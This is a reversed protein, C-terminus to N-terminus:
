GPKHDMDSDTYGAKKMAAESIGVLECEDQFTLQKDLAYQFHWWETKNYDTDWGGQASIREFVGNKEIEATLDIYYGLPIDFSSSPNFSQCSLAGKEHLKGQTGDQNSTKCYLRWTDRASSDADRVIYYRRGKPNALAQQLDIARGVIHFSFSSAGVKKAKGLGRKSDGYPGEVTGGLAKVRASVALWADAVDERLTFDGVKKFAFRGLPLKWQNDLWKKIEARTADDARGEPLGKFTLDPVVDAPLGSVAHVRYPRGAHRQFRKLARTSVKGFNGDDGGKPLYGLTILDAQLAKNATREIEITM